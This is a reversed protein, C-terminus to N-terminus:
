DCASKKLIYNVIKEVTAFHSENLEELSIEIKYKRELFLIFNLIGISDLLGIEILNDTQMNLHTPVIESYFPDTLFFNLVESSINAPNL